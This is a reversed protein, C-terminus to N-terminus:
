GGGTGTLGRRTLESKAYDTFQKLTPQQCVGTASIVTVWKVLHDQFSSIKKYGTPGNRLDTQFQFFRYQFGATKLQVYEAPPSQLIKRLRYYGKAWCEVNKDDVEVSGGDFELVRKGSANAAALTGYVYTDGKSTEGLEWAGLSYKKSGTGVDGPIEPLAPCTKIDVDAADMDQGDLCKDESVTQVAPPKQEETPPTTEDPPPTGPQQQAPDVEVQRTIVQESCGSAFVASLALVHFPIKKM